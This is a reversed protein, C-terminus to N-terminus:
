ATFTTIKKRSGSLKNYGAVVFRAAVASLVINICVDFKALGLIQQVSLPVNAVNALVYDKVQDM